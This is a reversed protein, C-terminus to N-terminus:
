IHRSLLIMLGLALEATGTITDLFENEGQLSVIQIGKHEAFSTDIHDLGTTATAIMKLRNGANIVRKNIHLGLGVVLIDYDSIISELEHQTPTQYDVSGLRELITKAEASYMEGITNLIKFHM